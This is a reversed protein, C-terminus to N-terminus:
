VWKGEFKMAQMRDIVGKWAHCELYILFAVVIGFLLADTASLINQAYQIIILSMVGCMCLIAAIVLYYWFLLCNKSMKGEPKSM